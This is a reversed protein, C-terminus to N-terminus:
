FFEHRLHRADTKQMFISIKHKNRNIEEIELISQLFVKIILHKSLCHHETSEPGAKKSSSISNHTYIYVSNVYYPKRWFHARMVRPDVIVTARSMIYVYLYFDVICQNNFWDNFVISIDCKIVISCRKKTSLNTSHGPCKTFYCLARIYQIHMEPLLSLYGYIKRFQILKNLM